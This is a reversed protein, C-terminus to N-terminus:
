GLAACEDPSGILVVDLLIELVIMFMSPQETIISTPYFASLEDPSKLSDERCGQDEAMIEGHCIIQDFGPLVILLIQKRTRHSIFPSVPM